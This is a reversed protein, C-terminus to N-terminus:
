FFLVNDMTIQLRLVNQKLGSVFRSDLHNIKSARAKDILLDVRVNLTPKVPSWLNQKSNM